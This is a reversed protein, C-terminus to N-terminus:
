RSNEALVDKKLIVKKLCFMATIQILPNPPNPSFHEEPLVKFLERTNPDTGTSLYVSFKLNDQPDFRVVQSMGDGDIKIFSATFPDRIDDITARFTMGVANPNNSIINNNSSVGSGTSNEIEVYVYQYFSILSGFGSNLIQNPLILNILELSYWQQANVIQSQANIFPFLNDYSYPLIFAKQTAISHTFQGCGGEIVGSTISFLDANTIPPAFPNGNPDIVAIASVVKQTQPDFNVTFTKIKRIQGAVDIFLDNYYNNKYIINSNNIPFEIVTTSPISNIPNINRLDVYKIIRKAEQPFILDYNDGIVVNNSFGPDLTAIKTTGDYSRITSIQGAASGSLVRLKAGNYYDDDANSTNRLQVTTTGNGGAQFQLVGSEKERSIELFSGSLNKNHIKNADTLTLNFSRKTSANNVIDGNLMNIYITPAFKRISYTDSATWNSVPGEDFTSTTSNETIVSFLKTTHDFNIIKRYENRTENFLIYNNYGNAINLATPLFFYPYRFHPSNMDTPDVIYLLTTGATITSSFTSNIVIKAKDNDLYEYSIIRRRDTTVASGDGIGAVAGAYYNNYIQLAGRGSTGTGTTNVILTTTASTNGINETGSGSITVNDVQVVLEMPDVATQRSNFTNGCWRIEYSALSVPDLSNEATKQGSQSLPVEFNSPLPYEKRNRRASTIELYQPPEM